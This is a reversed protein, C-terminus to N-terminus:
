GSSSATAPRSELVRSVVPLRVLLAGLGFSGVLALAAAALYEIEPPWPVLRTALVTGVLVIQHVVFAAFAARSLERLLRGQPGARRRFVDWLWLPMTVVLAGELLALVVSQWTGGGFFTEVDAGLVEATVSVVVVVGATASWAARLLWRSVGPPIRDWWGREAGVVGLAFSAVWAPAQALYLDQLGPVDAAEEGLPLVLRVGVSAAAVALGALVLPAARLPTAPRSAPSRASRLVAYAVSFLLLVEVFWLPGPAHHAWSYPVFSPFGRDWEGSNLMDAYEVVPAMVLLYVVLPVGLRLARDALFRRTGKRALSPPSFAGALLFFAPMAFLVALLALLNLGILLPERVPPEELVWAENDTWALTAHGVVVGAVLLVKLDDTATSRAAETTVVARAM